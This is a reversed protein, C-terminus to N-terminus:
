DARDVSRQHHRPEPMRQSRFLDRDPVRQNRFEHQDSLPGPNGQCRGSIGGTQRSRHGGKRSTGKGTEPCFVPVKKIAEEAEPMWKMLYEEPYLPKSTTEFGWRGIAANDRLNFERVLTYAGNGIRPVGESAKFGKQHVEMQSPSGIYYDMKDNALQVSHNALRPKITSFANYRLFDFAKFRIQTPRFVPLGLLGM